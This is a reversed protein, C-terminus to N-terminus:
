LISWHDGHIIGLVTTSTVETHLVGLTKAMTALKPHTVAWTNFDNQVDLHYQDL